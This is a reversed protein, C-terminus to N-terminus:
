VQVLGDDRWGPQYEPAAYEVEQRGPLFPYGLSSSSLLLAVEEEDVL